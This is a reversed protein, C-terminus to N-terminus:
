RKVTAQGSYTAVVNKHDWTEGKSILLVKTGPDTKTGGFYQYGVSSDGQLMPCALTLRDPIYKPVLDTLSEPYRGDHDKAYSKCANAIQRAHSLCDTQHPVDNMAKVFVPFGVGAIVGLFIVMVIMMLLLAIGFYGMILGAIALGSGSYRSADRKIQSLSLHGCVVAPVATLGSSLISAIGLVLSAIALGSTPASPPPPIIQRPIAPPGDSGLGPISTLPLWDEAGEHWALDNPQVSGAALSSRVEDPTYPGIKQGNRHIYFQM